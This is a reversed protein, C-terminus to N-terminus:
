MDESIKNKFRSLQFSITRIEDDIHDANYLEKLEEIAKSVKEVAKRISKLEEHSYNEFM